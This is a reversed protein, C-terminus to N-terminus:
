CSRERGEGSKEEGKNARGMVEKSEVKERRRRKKRKM